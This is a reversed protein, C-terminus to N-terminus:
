AFAKGQLRLMLTNIIFSLGLLFLGLLVALEFNGKGTELVIATTLVRTHHQINGGVIMVAGVESIISGFGAVIAVIVGTKAEWLITTAAQLQTAGLSFVQQRLQPDVGMVAAMTFGAVLPFAIITQALVMAAPTFLDPLWPLSLSSLPSSRSLLLYVFLGIVVPPFGMGTYMFAVFIRRGAFRKLGLLVGLPIGILASFFLATGSVRLSLLVIESFDAFMTM